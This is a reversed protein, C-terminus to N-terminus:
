IERRSSNTHIKLHSPFFIKRQCKAWFKLFMGNECERSRHEDSRCLEWMYLVEFVFSFQFPFCWFGDRRVEFLWLRLFRLTSLLEPQVGVSVVLGDSFLLFLLFNAFTAFLLLHKALERTRELQLGVKLSFRTGLSSFKIKEQNKAHRCKQHFAEPFCFVLASRKWSFQSDSNPRRAFNSILKCLAPVCSSNFQRGPFLHSDLNKRPLKSKYKYRLASRSFASYHRRFFM